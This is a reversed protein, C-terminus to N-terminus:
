RVPRPTVRGDLDDATGGDAASLLALFPGIRLGEQASHRFLSDHNVTYKTRRGARTRTLYGATELDAVIAQVTRETLGVATSIDRIRAEPDRAIEVLVHGHGTLLTWTGGNEGPDNM